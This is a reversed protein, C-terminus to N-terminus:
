HCAGEKLHTNNVLTDYCNLNKVVYNLNNFIKKINNTSNNQLQMEKITLVIVRKSIDFVLNLNNKDIRKMIVYCVTLM